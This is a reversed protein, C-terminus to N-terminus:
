SHPLLPSLTCLHSRTKTVQASTIVADFVKNKYRYIAEYTESIARVAKLEDNEFLERVIDRSMDEFALTEMLEELANAQSAKSNDVLGEVLETWVNDEIAYAIADLNAGVQGVCDEDQAFKYLAGAYKPYKGVLTPKTPEIVPDYSAAAAKKAKAGFTRATHRASLVFRQLM